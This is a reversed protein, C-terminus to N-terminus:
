YRPVTPDVTLSWANIGGELNMVDYGLPELYQCVQASRAGGHCMVVIPKGKDLEKMRKPIDMMPIQIHPDIRALALEDYGRVDLLIFKEKEKSFEKTTISKM